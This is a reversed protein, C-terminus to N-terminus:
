TVKTVQSFDLEVPTARGFISVLVKIRQKEPKVEEVSGTFDAFPGEKIKVTEGSEYMMKPTPKLTGTKIRNMLADVEEESIEPPAQHGGVIGTIKQTDKLIQWTAPTLIMKVLLYGPFFQRKSTKKKGTKTNEVIEQTPVLIQNFQEEAKFQHIRQELAQKAQEEFGSYAHIVYWRM